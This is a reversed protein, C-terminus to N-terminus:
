ATVVCLQSCFLHGTFTPSGLPQRSPRVYFFTHFKYFEVTCYAM